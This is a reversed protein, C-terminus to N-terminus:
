GETTPPGADPERRQESSGQPGPAADSVPAAYTALCASFGAFFDDGTKRITGALLRSGLQALKGGVRADIEYHLRTGGPEDFLRVDASGRAFGIPGSKASGVLTYREAPSPDEIVITVDFRASLPGVHTKVRAQFGGDSTRAFSECGPICQALVDADNLAQWVAERPAAIRYEGAHRMM